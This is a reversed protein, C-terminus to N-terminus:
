QSAAPVPQARGLDPGRWLSTVGVRGGRLSYVWTRFESTCTTMSIRVLMPRYTSPRSHLHLPCPSARRCRRAALSTGRQEHALSRPSWVLVYIIYGHQTHARSTYWVVVIVNGKPRRGQFPVGCFRKYNEEGRTRGRGRGGGDRHPGACGETQGASTKKQM